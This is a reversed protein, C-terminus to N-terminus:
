VKIIRFYLGLVILFSSITVAVLTWYFFKDTGSFSNRAQVLKTDTETARLLILSYSSILVLLFISPLINGYAYSLSKCLAGAVLAVATAYNLPAAHEEIRNAMLGLVGAAWAFPESFRAYGPNTVVGGSAWYLVGLIAIGFTINLKLLSNPAM